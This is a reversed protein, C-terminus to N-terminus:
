PEGDHYSSEQPGNRSAGIDMCADGTDTWPDHTDHTVDDVVAM